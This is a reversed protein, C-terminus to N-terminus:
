PKAISIGFFNQPAACVYMSVGTGPLALSTLGETQELRQAVRTYLRDFAAQVQLTAPATLRSIM